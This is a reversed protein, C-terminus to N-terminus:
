PEEVAGLVESDEGSYVPTRVVVVDVELIRVGEDLQAQHPIRAAHILEDPATAWLPVATDVEDQNLVRGPSM